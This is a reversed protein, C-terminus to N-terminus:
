KCEFKDETLNLTKVFNSSGYVCEYPVYIDMSNFDHITLDSTKKEKNVTESYKNPKTSFGNMSLLQRDNGGLWRRTQM